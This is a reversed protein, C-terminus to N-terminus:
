GRQKHQRVEEYLELFRTTQQEFSNELALERAAIGLQQRLQADLLKTMLVALGSVDDSKALILGDKGDTMLESAGNYRTTIVPLACAWAELVVLSCPDYWTPHVFVDAAAYYPRPDELADRFIVQGAIGLKEALQIFPKPRKGGAILVRIPHGAQILRAAAQLLATANKLLLNHALMVYLVEDKIGLDQRAAARHTERHAPSFEELDVGNYILRLREEPVGHLTEFHNQVMKSVSVITAGAVALQRREIETMERYRRERWFRIQRWRPIRMLNHEWLAVTSGGHPHFIDAYWGCGMDHIIDLALTRLHRELVGARDLRSRPMELRHLVLGSQAAAPNAEFSIVHTEHGRALLQQAFQWTWHELGGMQPDFKELVLGIKM